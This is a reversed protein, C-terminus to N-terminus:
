KSISAFLPTEAARLRRDIMPLYGEDKEILICRRGAKLCAAGTTGSGAFPDLVVKEGPKTTALIRRPLEIPFPAPHPNKGEPPFQWVDGMGSAGGSRLRFDPKALIMIWEHTPLYATANFNVGNGRSWIVVQRLPLDPNLELPLWLRGGVLRPKHNYFIAGDDALVRWCASLVSRQWAVYEEHPMDDKHAGYRLRGGSRVGNDPWLGRTRSKGPDTNRLLPWPSGSLNYPPSTIVLDVSGAPLTPLVDLCDGLIVQIDPTTM